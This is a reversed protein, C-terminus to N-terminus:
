LFDRQFSAGQFQDLWEGESIENVQYSIGLILDPCVNSISWILNLEM